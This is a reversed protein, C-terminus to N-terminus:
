EWIVLSPDLAIRKAEGPKGEIYYFRAIREDVAERFAKKAKSVKENISNSLPDTLDRISHRIAELNSRGTISLYIEELETAYNSLEKFRIGEPHKLFLLYVTKTLPDMKVERRDFDVLFIEKRSTIRIRSPEIKYSLVAEIQDMTVDYKELIAELERYLRDALEESVPGYAQHSGTKDPGKTPIWCLSIAKGERLHGEEGAPGGDTFSSSGQPLVASHISEEDPMEYDLGPFFYELAEPSLGRLAAMIRQKDTM